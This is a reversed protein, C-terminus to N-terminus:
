ETSEIKTELQTHTETQAETEVKIETEAKEPSDTKIEIKEAAMAERKALAMDNLGRNSFDLLRTDLIDQSEASLPHGKYVHQFKGDKWFVTLSDTDARDFDQSLVFPIGAALMPYDAEAPIVDNRRCLLAQIPHGKVHTEHDPDDDHVSAIFSVAPHYTTVQMTGNLAEDEVHEVLLVECHAVNDAWAAFPMGCLLSAALIAYTKM